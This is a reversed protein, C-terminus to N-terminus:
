FIRKRRSGPTQIAGLDTFSSDGASSWISNLSASIGVNKCLAGGGAANNITFDGNAADTIPDATLSIIQSDNFVGYTDTAYNGIANKGVWSAADAADYCYIAKCTGSNYGWFINNIVSPNIFNTLNRLRLSYETISTAIYTNNQCIMHGYRADDQIYGGYIINGTISSYVSTVLGISTAGTGSSADILCDAVACANGAEIASGYLAVAWCESVIINRYVELACSGTGSSLCVVKCRRVTGYQGVIWLAHKDATTPSEIDLNDVSVYFKGTPVYLTASAASASTIKPPTWINGNMAEDGATSYYGSITLPILTTFINDVTAGSAEEYDTASYKINVRPSDGDANVFSTSVLSTAHDITAWAGGVNVAKNATDTPVAPSVTAVSDTINTIRSWAALDGISTDFCLWDDVLCDTWSAVNDTIETGDGNSTADATTYIPGDNTGLRPGGGNVESSSSGKTVYFEAFAM